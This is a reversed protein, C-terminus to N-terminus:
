ADREVGVTMGWRLPLVVDEPLTILTEYVVDGRDMNARLAIETVKGRVKEGPFADFTVVVEDGQALRAVDLETLNRTKVLWNGTEALTAVAVQPGALEGVRADIRVVVGAFPATLTARALALEAAEVGALAAQVGAEALAATAEAEAVGAEALAAQAEAIALAVEAQRIEADTAGAQLLALEAEAQRRRAVAASVGADAAQEQAETPGAQLRELATQAADVRAQAAALQARTAEEVPGYLPCITDEPTEVCSELITEYNDQLTRLEATAAALEARAAEIQAAAGVRELLAERAATAQAVGSQAAALRSEAAALEEPLPGSQMLALRAAAVDVEARATEVAAGALAQQTRAAELAAEAAALQGQARALAIEQQAAELRLLPAGAAVRQGEEVLIEAVAGASQMALDVYAGPEVEGEIHVVASSPRGMGTSRDVIPRGGDDGIVLFATMGWRLEWVEALSAGDDLVATVEYHVDESTTQGLTAGSREPAEAIQILHGRFTQGPFADVGVQVTQGEELRVVDLESLDSTQVRWASFDAVVVAPAGAAALQGQKASVDVVAGDFPARLTRRDLATQAAEHEAQAVVLKAEAQRLAARAGAVLAESEAATERAQQVEAEAVAAAEPRPGVQLLDLEAQAAARQQAAGAVASRAAQAEAETAGQQLATLEARAAEVAQQAANLRLQAQAREDESLDPNQTKPEEALRVAFLNAEAAELKAEAMAIAAADTELTMGQEGAAQAVGADAAAVGSEALALAEVRPAATLADLRAQAADIALQAVVLGAEASQLRAEAAAVNAEAQAVNAAAQRVAIAEDGSDLRVLPDGAAVSDGEAALVAEVLGNMEPALAAHRQPALAGEAFVVAPERAPREAPEPTTVQAATEGPAGNAAQGVTAVISERLFVAAAGLLMVIVIAIIGKRINM